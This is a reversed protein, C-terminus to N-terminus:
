LRAQEVEVLSNSRNLVYGRGETLDRAGDTAHRLEIGCLHLCLRFQLGHHAIRHVSGVVLHLGDFVEARGLLLQTDYAGIHLHGACLLQSSVGRLLRRQCREDGHHVVHDGLLVAEIGRLLRGHINGRHHALHEGPLCGRQTAVAVGEALRLLLDQLEAGLLLLRRRQGLHYTLAHAAHVLLQGLRVGPMHHLQAVGDVVDLHLHPLHEDGELREKRLGCLHTHSGATDDLQGLRNIRGADGRLCPRRRLPQEICCEIGVRDADDDHRQTCQGTRQDIGVIM